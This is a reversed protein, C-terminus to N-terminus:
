RDHSEDCAQEVVKAVSDLVGPVDAQNGVDGPKKGEGDDDENREVKGRYNM